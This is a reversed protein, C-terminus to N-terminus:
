RLHRRSFEVGSGSKLYREFAMARREDAFEIVVDIVWPIGTATHPSGGRNHCAIREEVNSTIGTYYRPPTASNKLIYVFRRKGAMRVAIAIFLGYSSTASDAIQTHNNAQWGYSLGSLLFGM